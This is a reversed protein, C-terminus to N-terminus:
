IPSYRYSKLTCCAAKCHGTTVAMNNHTTVKPVLYTIM